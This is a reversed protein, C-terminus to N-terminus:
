NGTVYELARHADLRGYIGSVPQLQCGQRIANAIDDPTCGPCHSKILAAVGTVIPAAESTGSAYGYRNGRDPQIIFEGPAGIINTGYSSAPYRQGTRTTAAVSIIHPMKWGTPYTPSVDLNRDYGVAAVILVDRSQAFRCANSLQLIHPDGLGTQQWSLNIIQCGNNVCFIIGNAIDQTSYDMAVCVLRTGPAIGCAGKGNNKKAAIIGALGTGHGSFDDNYPRSVGHRENIYWGINVVGQLDEHAQDCGSDVIGVTVGNGNPQINWAGTINIDSNGTVTFSPQLVNNSYLLSSQGTNKTFWAYENRTYSNVTYDLYQVRRNADYQLLPDPQAFCQITLAFLFAILKM